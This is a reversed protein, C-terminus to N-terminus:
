SGLLQSRSQGGSEQSPAATTAPKAYLDGLYRACDPYTGPSQVVAETIM